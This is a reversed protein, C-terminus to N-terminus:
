RTAAQVHLTVAIENEIHAHPDDENAATDLADFVRKAAGPADLAREADFLRAVVADCGAGLVKRGHDLVAAREADADANAGNAPRGINKSASSPPPQKQSALHDNLAAHAARAVPEDTAPVPANDVTDFALKLPADDATSDSASDRDACSTQYGGGEAAIEPECTILNKHAALRHPVEVGENKAGAGGNEPVEVPMELPAVKSAGGAPAVVNAGAPIFLSFQANEEGLRRVEIWGDAKLRAIGRFLTRRSIQLESMLKKYGPDCKGTRCNFFIGLRMAIRVELLPLVDRTLIACMWEDRGKHGFIPKAGVDVVYTADIPDIPKNIGTTM